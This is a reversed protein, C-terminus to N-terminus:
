FYFLYCSVYSLYWLEFLPSPLYTGFNRVIQYGQKQQAHELMGLYFFYRLYWSLMVNKLFSTLFLNSKKEHGKYKYGLVYFRSFLLLSYKFPIFINGFSLNETHCCLVNVHNFLQQIIRYKFRNTNRIILWCVNKKNMSNQTALHNNSNM